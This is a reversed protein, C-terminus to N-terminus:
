HNDWWGYLRIHLRSGVKCHYVTLLCFCLKFFLLFDLLFHIGKPQRKPMIYAIDM